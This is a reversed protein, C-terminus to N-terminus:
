VFKKNINEKIKDLEISIKMHKGKLREENPFIEEGANVAVGADIVGKLFAYNRSKPISRLLGFDAVGEAKEKIDSIKRGLLFGTLYCAPLSKLSGKNKEPWGYNLLESSNAGFLVKDKAGESKVYQSIIYRNTKRFVIRPKGGGLLIIRKRYDTKGEARRRKIM